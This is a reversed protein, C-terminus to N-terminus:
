AGDGEGDTWKEWIEGRRGEGEKKGRAEEMPLRGKTGAAAAAAAHRLANGLICACYRLVEVFWSTTSFYLSTWCAAM